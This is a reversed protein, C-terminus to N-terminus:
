LCHVYSFTEAVAYVDFPFLIVVAFIIRNWDSSDCAYDFTKCLPNWTKSDTSRCHELILVCSGTNGIIEELQSSKVYYMICWYVCLGYVNYKVYHKGVSTILCVVPNRQGYVRELQRRPWVPDNQPSSRSASAESTAKRLTFSLPSASNGNIHPSQFFM